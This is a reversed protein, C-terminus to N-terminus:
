EKFKITIEHDTKLDVSEMTDGIQVKVLGINTGPQKQLFLRYEGRSSRSAASAGDEGSDEMAKALSSPLDYVFTATFEEQPRVIFYGGFVTKGFEEWGAPNEIMASRANPSTWIQPIGEVSVLRSGKPVYIRVFNKYYGSLWGDYPAPNFYKIAVTKRWTGDAMRELSQSVTEQLYLNTKLGGFNSDNIHLYDGAYEKLEGAYGLDKVLQQEREAVAFFLLNKEAFHKFVFDILQPWIEASSSIIRQILADSIRDLVVKKREGETRAGSDALPAREEYYKLRCFLNTSTFDRGGQRCGEPLDKRNSLDHDYGAVRLPGTITLLDSAIKTNIAFVGAVPPLPSKRWVELLTRASTPFDPSFNGDQFHWKNVKLYLGIPLPPAGLEPPYKEAFYGSSHFTNETIKGRELTILSFGTIFGGTARLEAENQFLVLYTRKPLGLLAPAVELIRRGQLVLPETRELINQVERLWFRVKVGRIEEPYGRPDIQDLEKQIRGINEWIADLGSALKPLTDIFNGLQQEVTIQGGFGIKLGLVEEYPKITEVATGISDLALGGATLVRNGDEFYRNVLPIVRFYSLRSYNKQLRAFDEEVEALASETAALDRNTIAAKLDRVAPVLSRASPYLLAFPLIGLLLFSLLLLSLIILWVWKLRRCGKKEQREGRGRVSPIHPSVSQSPFDRLLEM